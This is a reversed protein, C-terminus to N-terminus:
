SPHSATDTSSQLWRRYRKVGSYILFVSLFTSIVTMSFGIAEFEWNSLITLWSALAILDSFIGLTIITMGKKGTYGSWILGGILTYYFSLGFFFLYSLRWSGIPISLGFARVAVTFIFLVIVSTWFKHTKVWHLIGIGKQRNM